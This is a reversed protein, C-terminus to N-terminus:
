RRKKPAPTKEVVEEVEEEELVPAEEIEEVEEEELVPTEEVPAEVVPEEVQEVAPTEEVVEDNSKNKIKDLNLSMKTGYMANVPKKDSM